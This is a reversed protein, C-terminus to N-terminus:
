PEGHLRRLYHSRAEVESLKMSAYRSAEALLTRAEDDNRTLLTHLDQGARAVYASILQRELEALPEDLPPRETHTTAMIHGRRSPRRSSDERDRDTWSSHAGTGIGPHSACLSGAM